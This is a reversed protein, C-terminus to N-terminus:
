KGEERSRGLLNLLDGSSIARMDKLGISNAVNKAAGVNKFEELSIIVLKLDLEIGNESIIPHKSGSKPTFFYSQIKITESDNTTSTTTPTLSLTTLRNSLFNLDMKNFFPKPFNKNYNKTSTSFLKISKNFLLKNILGM